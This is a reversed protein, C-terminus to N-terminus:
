PEGIEDGISYTDIDARDHDTLGRPMRPQTERDVVGNAEACVAGVAEIENEHDSYKFMKEVLRCHKAAYSVHQGPPATEDDDRGVRPVRRKAEPVHELAAIVLRRGSM